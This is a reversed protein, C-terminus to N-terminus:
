FLHKFVQFVIVQGCLVEDQLVKRLLQPSASQNDAHVLSNEEVARYALVGSVLQSQCKWPAFAKFANRVGAEARGLVDHWLLWFHYRHGHGPATTQGWGMLVMDQHVQVCVVDHRVREWRIQLGREVGKELMSLVNTASADLASVAACCAANQAVVLGKQSNAPIILTKVRSTKLVNIQVLPQDLHASRLACWCESQHTAPTHGVGLFRACVLEGCCLGAKGATEQGPAFLICLISCHRCRLHFGAQPPSVGQLSGEISLLHPVNHALNPVLIRVSESHKKPGRDM